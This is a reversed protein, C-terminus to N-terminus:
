IGHEKAPKSFRGSEDIQEWLDGFVRHVIVYDTDNRVSTESLDIFLGGGHMFRIQFPSLWMGMMVDDFWTTHPPIKFSAILDAVDQSVLWGAGSMYQGFQVMGFVEMLRPQASLQLDAQYETSKRLRGYFLRTTPLTPMIDYYFYKMNLYSDSCIRWVYKAEYTQSVHKYAEYVKCATSATNDPNNPEDGFDRCGTRLYSAHQYQVVVSTDIEESLDKGTKSGLIFILVAQEPKWGEQAFRRHQPERRDEWTVVSPVLIVVDTKIKGEPKSPEPNQMPLAHNRAFVPISLVQDIDVSWKGNHVAGPEYHVYYQLGLNFALFMYCSNAPAVQLEVVATGEQMAIINALGAGHPGIVVSADAFMQLQQIMPELGTHEQVNGPLAQMLDYHNIIERAGHRGIVLITNQKHITLQTHLIARLWIAHRSKVHGGCPTPRPSLLKKSVLMTGSAVHSFGLIQLIPLANGANSTHVYVPQNSFFSPHKQLGDALRTLGEVVLHFFGEGWFQTIVIAYDVTISAHTPCDQTQRASKDGCGGSGFVQSTSCDIIDGNEHVYVPGQLLVDDRQLSIIEDEDQDLREPKDTLAACSNLVSVTICSTNLLEKTDLSMWVNWTYDHASEKLKDKNTNHKICVPESSDEQLFWADYQKAMAIKKSNGVVWNYQQVVPDTGNCMQQYDQGYLVHYYRGSRFQCRDFETLTPKTSQIVDKLIFQDNTFDGQAIAAEMRGMVEAYFQKAEQTAAFRIFGGGYMTGDWYMVLDTNTTAIQPHNLINEFYQADAELWMVVRNGLLELLLQGRLLMMRIYDPTDYDHSGQITDEYFWFTVDTDLASLYDLAALDTVIILTHAHMPPFIATNCLFNALIEKYGSNGFTVLLPSPLDDLNVPRGRSTLNMRKKPAPSVVTKDSKRTVVVKEDLFSTVFQAHETSGHDYQADPLQVNFEKDTNKSSHGAYNGDSTTQHLATLTQSLDVLNHNHFAWDVLANDYARRGIVYTPLTRLEQVLDRTMIFYDQAINIFPESKVSMISDIDIEGELEHNNRRGVAMMRPQNWELLADINQILRADFLIDANAYALLPTSPCAEEVRQMLSMFFPTGHQNTEPKDLIKMDWGAAEPPVPETQFAQVRPLFSRYMRATNNHAIMKLEDHAPPFTIVVCLDPVEPVRVAETELMTLNPLPTADPLRVMDRAQMHSWFNVNVYVSNAILMFVLFTVFKKPIM